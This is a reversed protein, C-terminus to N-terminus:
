ESEGRAALEELVKRALPRTIRRHEALAAEDLASVLEEAAKLSREMRLLLYSIVDEGVLLQRDAFLKVLVARLLEDDPAGLEVFPLASLRSRLDPLAVNWTAPSSTATMLVHAGEQRAMNLLHFLATEDLREGPMDELLLAGRSLLLPVAEVNLEAPTARLADHELRWIEGLHTKGSGPPGVLALAPPDEPATPWTSIAEYAAENAPTVLFDERGMGPNLPLELVLQRRAGDRHRKTRAKEGGREPGNTMPHNVM